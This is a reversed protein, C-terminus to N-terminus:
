AFGSRATVLVAPYRMKQGAATDKRRALVTGGARFVSSRNNQAAARTRGGTQLVYPLKWGAVTGSLDAFIIGADLNPFRKRVAQRTAECIGRGITQMAGTHIKRHYPAANVIMVQADSPVDNLDGSWAVGNVAVFWSRKYTGSVAPSRERAFALGFIAAQGLTNFRYIIAGGPKISEEPANDRGDVLTRYIPSAQGGSILGDREARAARAIIKARESQPLLASPTIKAMRKATMM